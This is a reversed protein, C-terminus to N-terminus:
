CSVGIRCVVRFFLNSGTELLNYSRVCTGESIVQAAVVELKIWRSSFLERRLDRKPQVAKSCVCCTCIQHPGKKQARLAHRNATNKQINSFGFPKFVRLTKFQQPTSAYAHTHGSMTGSFQQPTSAYAHTHGSVTGCPAAGFPIITWNVESEKSTQCKAAKSGLKSNVQTQVPATTRAM